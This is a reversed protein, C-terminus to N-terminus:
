PGPINVQLIIKAKNRKIECKCTCPVTVRENYQMPM